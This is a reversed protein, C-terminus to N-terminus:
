VGRLLLILISLTIVSLLTSVFTVASTFEADSGFQTALASALVATPMSAQVIAVNFTTGTLGILTALTFGVVPGILLRIGTAALIPQLRGRLKVRSLQLGLLALMGPISGDAAIDIAREIAPPLM